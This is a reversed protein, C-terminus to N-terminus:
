AEPQSVAQPDEQAKRGLWIAGLGLLTVILGFAFGVYPISALLVYLVLGLVLALWQNSAFSRRSLRSLIFKGVLLAVIAKSVYTVVLLFVSFGAILGGLLTTFTMWAISNLSLILLGLLIGIMLVIVLIPILYGNLLVLAGYGISALPRHKVIGSWRHLNRPFWWLVLLGVILFTTLSVLAKKLWDAMVPKEDVQDPDPTQAADQQVRTPLPLSFLAGGLIKFNGSKVSQPAVSVPEPTSLALSGRESLPLGTISREFQRTMIRWMEWLGIVARTDREVKGQLNASIAITRLDRGISSDPAMNLSLTLNYLSRGIKANALQRTTVAAIFSNGTVEGGLTVNEAVVFLNGNVVGTVSVDSGVIFADGNVVGELVPAEGHLFVDNEIVQSSQLTELRTISGAHVLLAPTALSTGFIFILLLLFYDKWTRLSFKTTPTM